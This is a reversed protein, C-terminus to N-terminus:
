DMAGASAAETNADARDDVDDADSEAEDRDATDDILGTPATVSIKYGYRDADEVLDEVRLAFRERPTLEERAQIDAIADADLDGLEALEEDVSDIMSELAEKRRQLDAQRSLRAQLTANGEGVAIWAGNDLKALIAEFAAALQPDKRQDRLWDATMPAPPSHAPDATTGDVGSDGNSDVMDADRRAEIMDRIADFDM